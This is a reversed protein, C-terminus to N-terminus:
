GTLCGPRTTPSRTLLMSIETVDIAKAPNGMGTGPAMNMPPMMPMAGAGPQAFPFGPMGQAQVAGVHGLLTLAAALLAARTTNGTGIM